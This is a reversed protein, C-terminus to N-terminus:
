YQNNPLLSDEESAEFNSDDVLKRRNGRYLCYHQIMFIVDFFMSINSLGLKVPNGTIGSWSGQLWSDLVLQALSLIGGAFDFMLQYISWGETSKNKHNTIVQPTFKILTVV